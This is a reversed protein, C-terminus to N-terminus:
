SPDFEIMVVPYQVAAVRAQPPCRDKVHAALGRALYGIQVSDHWVAVANKDHPNEPEPRLAVVDGVRVKERIRNERSTGDANPFRTGAVQTIM